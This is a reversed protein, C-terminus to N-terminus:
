HVKEKTEFAEDILFDLKGDDSDAEIQRDWNESDLHGAAIIADLVSNVEHIM